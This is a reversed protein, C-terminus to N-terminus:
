KDDQFHHRPFINKPNIRFVIEKDDILYVVDMDDQGFIYVNMEVNLNVNHSFVKKMLGWSERFDKKESESLDKVHQHIEETSIYREKLKIQIESVEKNTTNMARQFMHQTLLDHNEQALIRRKEAPDALNRQYYRKVVWQESVELV